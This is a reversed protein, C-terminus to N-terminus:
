KLEKHVFTDPDEQIRQEMTLKWQESLENVDYASKSTQQGLSALASLDLKMSRLEALRTQVIGIAYLSESAGGGDAITYIAANLQSDASQVISMTRNIGDAVALKGERYETFLMFNLALSGALLVM